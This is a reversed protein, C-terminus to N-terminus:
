RNIIALLKELEEKTPKQGRATKFFIPLSDLVEKKNLMEDPIKGKTLSAFDFFDFWEKSKKEIGLQEAWIELQKTDEPPYILGREVKSWNGPDHEFKRCFERLGFGRKLRLEKVLEGFQNM